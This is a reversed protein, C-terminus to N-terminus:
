ELDLDVENWCAYPVFLPTTGIAYVVIGLGQGPPLIIRGRLDYNIAACNFATTNAGDFQAVQSWRANTAPTTIAAGTKVIAKSNPGGNSANTVVMGANNAGTLAPSQFICTAVTFGRSATLTGSVLIAGIHDFVYSKTADGNWITWNPTLVALAGLPALGTVAANRGLFFRKGARTMETGESEVATIALSEFGTARINIASLGSKGIIFRRVKALIEMGM